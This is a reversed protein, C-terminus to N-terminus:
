LAGARRRAADDARPLRVRDLAGDGACGAAGGAGARGHGHVCRQVRRGVKARVVSRSTSARSSFRRRKAPRARIWKPMSCSRATSAPATRPGQERGGESLSAEVEAGSRRAEASVPHRAKRSAPPRRSSTSRARVANNWRGHDIVEDPRDHTHAADLGASRRRRHPESAVALMAGAALTARLMRKNM